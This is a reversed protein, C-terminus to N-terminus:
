NEGLVEMHNLSVSGYFAQTWCIGHAYANTLEILVVPSVCDYALYNGNEDIEVIEFGFRYRGNVLNSTDFSFSVEKFKDAEISFSDSMAMGLTSGKDTMVKLNLTIKGHYESSSMGLKFKIKQGVEYVFSDTDVFEFRHVKLKKGFHYSRPVKDLDYCLAYDDINRKMYVAIGDEVDGDFIVKGRSLVVCRNCLARITNMNHSVYLITRGEEKSLQNMKEICKNQFEMDGVALVEDMIMIEADLHAAVSFGLKVKMGSSYRKIPTDIFEEIEAFKVIDDIKSNIEDKTMGLIAGNLYINERGTLEPHFGTGVELMSAIRGEYEIRGETPATVRSILKLLTSKGAGNHGILGIREGKNVSFTVGNLARFIDGKQGKNSEGIISNPDEKGRVTAWWTQLDGKLTGGGIQGLRYQKVINEIKIIENEM